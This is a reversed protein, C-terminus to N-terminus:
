GADVANQAGQAHAVQQASYGIFLVVVGVLVVVGALWLLGYTIGHGLADLQAANMFKVPGNTGGLSLTHSTVAAQVLVLVVPGGLSQLMVAIASAPGIRDLGVSALLSLRLPVSAMGMGVAAVVLPLVLNPFYPAGRTLTSGYLMASLMLVGAAIMVVRPSFWKVLQSSVTAGIAMAVAFPIFGVSARLASYGMVDQVYIAVLVMLTFPVGGGLFIAAFLALRNRDFFLNFPVVPNQAKREILVFAALAALVVAGSGMPIPSLWGKEPVISLGFVTATCILTALVAGAADLKIREKPTERLATRALCLALIGLPVNLLFALRWSVGTLAGGVVLGMVSGVGTLAAFVATAANRFPGKPFTTAILAISTPAVIAAAVGQLLRAVVLASGNWAIGCMASAVTFLAVGIIFTRKRGFTEGLRGGLLMLGGFTLVYATIVWSRGTNSLGLENQITPLAVVSITSDMMYLLQMAGIAIVAAVFWRPPLRFSLHHRRKHHTTTLKARMGIAPNVRETPGHPLTQEGDRVPAM